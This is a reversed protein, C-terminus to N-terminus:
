FSESAVSVNTGPLIFTECFVVLTKIAFKLFTFGGLVYFFACLTNGKVLVRPREASSLNGERFGPSVM